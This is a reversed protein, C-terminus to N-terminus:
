IRVPTFIECSSYVTRQLDRKYVYMRLYHSSHLGFHLILATQKSYLCSVHVLEFLSEAIIRPLNRTRPRRFNEMFTLRFIM